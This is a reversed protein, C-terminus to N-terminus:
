AVPEPSRATHHDGVFQGSTMRPACLTSALLLLSTGKPSARAGRDALRMQQAVESIRAYANPIVRAIRRTMCVYMAHVEVVVYSNRM